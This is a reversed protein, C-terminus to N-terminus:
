RGEAPFAMGRLRDADLGDAAEIVLRAEGAPVALTALDAGVLERAQRVVLGLLEGRKTGALIVGTVARVAELRRARDDVEQYLHANEIAVGAQAALVELARQDDADFEEAAQKETLYLNGFVQGRAAVPAGLFSRMPPHNPPFGVSRPDEALDRLRLPVADAILVGLIGGGVPIHGIAAREEATVGTTVFQTIVGDPGLVGLAGYRAGTIEAALEVIHQLVAPLSLESSLVLGAEVLRQTREGPAAM